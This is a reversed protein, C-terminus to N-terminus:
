PRYTIRGSTGTGGQLSWSSQGGGGSVSMVGTNENEHSCQGKFGTGNLAKLVVSVRDEIRVRFCAPANRLEFTRIRNDSADGQVQVSVRDGDECENDWVCIQLNQDTVTFDRLDQRIFPQGSTSQGSSGSSSAGTRSSGAASTRSSGPSTQPPTGSLGAAVGTLIATTNEIARENSRRQERAAAARQATFDEWATAYADFMRRWTAEAATQQTGTQYWVGTRFKGGGSLAYRGDSYFSQRFRTGSSVGHDCSLVATGIGSCQFPTGGDEFACTSSGPNCSRPVVFEIQDGSAISLGSDRGMISIRIPTGLRVTSTSSSGVTSNLAARQVQSEPGTSGPSGGTTSSTDCGALGIALGLAAISTVLRM